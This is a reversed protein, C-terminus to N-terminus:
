QELCHRLGDALTQITAEAQEMYVLYKAQEDMMIIKLRPNTDGYEKRDFAVNEFASQYFYKSL